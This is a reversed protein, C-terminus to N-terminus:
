CPHFPLFFLPFTPHFTQVHSPPLRHEWGPIGHIHQREYLPVSCTHSLLTVKTSINDPNHLHSPADDPGFLLFLSVPSDRDPSPPHCRPQSPLSVYQGLLRWFPPLGALERPVEARWFHVMSFTHQKFGKLTHCNIGVAVTNLVLLVSVCKLYALNSQRPNPAWAIM